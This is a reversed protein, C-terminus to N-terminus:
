QKTRQNLMADAIKYAEIAIGEACEDGTWVGDQNTASTFGTIAKAAFYDRLTMGSYTPHEPDEFKSRTPFTNPNPIKKEEM